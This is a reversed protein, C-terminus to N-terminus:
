ARAQRRAYSAKPASAAAHSFTRQSNRANPRLVSHGRGTGGLGVLLFVRLDTFFRGFLITGTSLISSGVKPKCFRQV